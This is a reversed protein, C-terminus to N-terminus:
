SSSRANGNGSQVQVRKPQRQEQRPEPIRIELVGNTFSAQVNNEDVGEPLPIARYFSGYVRETRYFGDRNEEREEKREGSIALIGDDIEVDVEDPDIGPLDARV